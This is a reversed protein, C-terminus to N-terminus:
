FYIPGLGQSRYRCQVLFEVAYGCLRGVSRALVFLSVGQGRLVRYLGSVRRRSVVISSVSFACFVLVVRTGYMAPSYLHRGLVSSYRIPFSVYM